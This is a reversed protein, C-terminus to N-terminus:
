KLLNKVTDAKKKVDMVKKIGPVQELVKNAVKAELTQPADNSETANEKGNKNDINDSTKDSSLEKKVNRFEKIAGGLGKGIDPLRKAGFILLVIVAIIILETPGLGFM